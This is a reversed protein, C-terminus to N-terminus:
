DAKMGSKKIKPAYLALEMKVVAALEDPTGSGSSSYNLHGPHVKAM